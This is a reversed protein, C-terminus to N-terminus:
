MDPAIFSKEIPKVSHSGAATTKGGVLSKHQKLATAFTKLMKYFYEQTQQVETLISANM